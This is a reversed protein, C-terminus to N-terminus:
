VVVLEHARREVDGNKDVEQLLFVVVSSRRLANKPVAFDAFPTVSTAADLVPSCRCIELRTCAVRNTMINHQIFYDQANYVSKMGHGEALFCPRFLGGRLIKLRVKKRRM